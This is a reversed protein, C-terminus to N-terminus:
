DMPGHVVCTMLHRSIARWVTARIAAVLPHNECNLSVVLRKARHSPGELAIDSVRYDPRQEPLRRAYVVLARIRCRLAPPDCAEEELSGTCCVDPRLHLERCSDIQCTVLPAGM